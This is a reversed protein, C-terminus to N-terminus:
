DDGCNIEKEYEGGEVHGRGHCQSASYFLSM